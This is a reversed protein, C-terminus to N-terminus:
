RCNNNAHAARRQESVVYSLKNSIPCVWKRKTHEKYIYQNHATYILRRPKIVISSRFNTCRELYFRNSSGDDFTGCTSLLERGMTSTISYFVKDELNNEIRGHQQATHRHKWRSTLSKIHHM